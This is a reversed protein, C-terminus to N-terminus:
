SDMLDAGLCLCLRLSLTLSRSLVFLFIVLFSDFCMTLHEHYGGVKTDNNTVYVLYDKLGPLNLFSKPRNLDVLM